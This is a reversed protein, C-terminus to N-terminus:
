FSWGDFHGRNDAPVPMVNTTSGTSVTTTSSSSTTSTSMTTNTTPITTIPTSTTTNSTTTSTNITTTMPSLTTVPSDGGDSCHELSSVVRPPIGDNPPQFDSPHCSQSDEKYFVFICTTTKNSFCEECITTDPCPSNTTTTDTVLSPSDTSSDNPAAAAAALLSFSLLIFRKRTAEMNTLSGM